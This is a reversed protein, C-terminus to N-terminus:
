SRGRLYPVPNVAQGDHRLEMSLQPRRAQSQPDFGPMVGIPEGSQVAQGVAGDLREFGSLVAHWGAGCDVITLLGFSRFPGAFVVRGACPSVVRASPPVQYALGSSTGGDVGEGFGRVVTGAVPSVLGSPGGSALPALSAVQAPPKPAEQHRRAAEAAQAKAEAAARAEAAQREAELRAIAARLGDARAAEAAAKRASDAAVGEAAKRGTLAQQMQADLAAAQASQAAQRRQLEPLAHDLEAGLAVIRAQEARLATADTELKRLLGGLVLLGRVSQEPALPVALMTESPFLALREVVPLLPGLDAARQALRQEAEERRRALEAVQDVADSSATELERLRAAAAVRQTALRAEEAALSAAKAQAQKQEDLLAARAREADQVSQRTPAPAAAGLLILAAAMLCPAPRM